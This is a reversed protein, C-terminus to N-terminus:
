LDMCSWKNQKPLHPSLSLLPRDVYREGVILALVFNWTYNDCKIGTHNDQGGDRWEVTKANEM